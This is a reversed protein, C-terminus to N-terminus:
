FGGLNVHKWTQQSLVRSITSQSVGFHEALQTQTTNTSKSVISVVDAKTLKSLGNREGHVYRDRGKKLMDRMNDTQTGLFLHSPNVCSPNDCKHLVMLGNPITGKHLEWSVRHARLTRGHIWFMGYGDPLKCSTWEWCNGTKDVKEFFRKM